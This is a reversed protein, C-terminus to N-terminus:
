DRRPPVGELVEVTVQHGDWGVMVRSLRRTGPWLVEARGVVVQPLALHSPKPLFSKVNGAVINMLEGTADQIDDPKVSALELMEAAIAAAAGLDSRLVIMGLWAGAVGVSATIEAAASHQEDDSAVTPSTGLYATWVQWIIGELDQAALPEEAPSTM